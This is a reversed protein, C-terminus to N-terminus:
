RHNKTVEDFEGGNTADRFNIQYSFESANAFDYRNREASTVGMVLDLPM